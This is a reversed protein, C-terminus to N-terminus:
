CAALHSNIRAQHLCSHQGRGQGIPDRRRASMLQDTSSTRDLQLPENPLLLRIAAWEVDTLEYRM